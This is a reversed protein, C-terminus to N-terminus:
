PYLSPHCTSRASSNRPSTIQYKINQHMAHQQQQQKKTRVYTSNRRTKQYIPMQSSNVLARREPVPIPPFGIMNSVSIQTYILCQDCSKIVHLRAVKEGQERKRSHTHLFRILYPIRKARTVPRHIPKRYPWPAHSIPFASEAFQFTSAPRQAKTRIFPTDNSRM